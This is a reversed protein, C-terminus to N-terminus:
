NQYSKSHKHDGYRSLKPVALRPENKTRRKVRLDALGAPRPSSRPWTPVAGSSPSSTLDARFRRFSPAETASIPPIVAGHVSYIAGCPRRLEDTSSQAALLVPMSQANALIEIVSAVIPSRRAEIRRYSTFTTGRDRPRIERRARRARPSRGCGSGREMLPATLYGASVTVAVRLM